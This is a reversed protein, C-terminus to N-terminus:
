LIVVVVNVIFSVLRLIKAASLFPTSVDEMIMMGVFFDGLGRRLQYNQSSLVFCIVHWSFVM